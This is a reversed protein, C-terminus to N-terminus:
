NGLEFHPKDVFTRWHGGWRVDVGLKSAAALIHTALVAWELESATYGKPYPIVDVARSPIKNHNGHPYMLKSKGQEYARNQDEENRHGCVVSFDVHKIAENIVKQLDPHCTALREKSIKSFSAM